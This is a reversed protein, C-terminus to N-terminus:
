IADLKLRQRSEPSTLKLTVGKSERWVEFHTAFHRLKVIGQLDLKASSNQVHAEVTRINIHLKVSIERTTHGTGLLRLVEYERPSLTLVLQFHPPIEPTTTM